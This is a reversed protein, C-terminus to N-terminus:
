RQTTELHTALWEGGLFRLEIEEISEFRYPRGSLKGQEVVLSRLRIATCDAGIERASVSMRRHSYDELTAVAQMVSGVLEVRSFEITKTQDAKTRITAKASADNAIMALLREGNKEVLATDFDRLWADAIEIPQCVVRETEVIAVPAISRLSREVEAESNEVYRDIEADFAGPVFFDPVKELLTPLLLTMLARQRREPAKFGTSVERVYGVRGPDVDIANEDVSLTTGGKNVKNYTGPPNKAETAFEAVLVYPEHDTGRIGITAQPTIVRNEPRNLKAIWGTVIRLSGTLLRLVQQDTSKGQAAFSDIVFESSPRIAILGADRMKILAEGTNASIVRDGPYVHAGETLRRSKASGAPMVQVLGIVRQVSGASVDDKLPVAFAPLSFILFLFCLVEKFCLNRMMVLVGLLVAADGCGNKIVTSNSM